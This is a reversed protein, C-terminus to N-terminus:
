PRRCSAPRCRAWAAYRDVGVGAGCDEEGLGAVDHRGGHGVGASPHVAVDVEVLVLVSLEIRLGFEDAVGVILTLVAFTLSHAVAVGDLRTGEGDGGVEGGADVTQAVFYVPVVVIGEARAVHEFVATGEDVDTEIDVTTCGDQALLVEVTFDDRGCTGFEFAVLRGETLGEGHLHVGGVAEFVGTHDHLM